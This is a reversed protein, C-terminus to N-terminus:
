PTARGIVRDPSCVTVLISNVAARAGVVRGVDVYGEVVPHVAFVDVRWVWLLGVRGRAGLLPTAAASGVAMPVSTKEEDSREPPRLFSDSSKIRERIKM